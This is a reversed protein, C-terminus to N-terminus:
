PHNCIGFTGCMVVLIGDLVVIRCMNGSFVASTCIASSAIDWVPYECYKFTKFSSFELITSFCQEVSVLM